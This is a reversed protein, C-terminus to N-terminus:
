IYEEYKITRQRPVKFEARRYPFLTPFAMRLIPIDDWELIPTSRFEPAILPQPALDQRMHAAESHRTTFNPVMGTTELDQEPQGNIENIIDNIQGQDVAEFQEEIEPIFQRVSGDEPLSNLAEDDITVNQYHPHNQGLFQRWILIASRRVRFDREFQCELLPQERDTTNRSSPRLLVIDLNAPLLPLRDYLKMNDQMFNVTHGSYKYQHGRIRRVQVHVHARAILMEETQTLIPLHAPIAGIEM